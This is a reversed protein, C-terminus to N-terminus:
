LKVKIWQGNVCAKNSQNLAIAGYLMSVIKEPMAPCWVKLGSFECSKLPFTWSVPSSIWDYSTSYQTLNTTIKRMAKPKEPVFTYTPWLDIYHGFNRHKLRANPAIFEVGQSPFRDRNKFGVRQWQPHVRLVHVDSINADAFPFIKETDNALMMLDIDHDHPLLGRHRVYGILSGYGLWYQINHTDAFHVWVLLSRLLHEQRTRDNVTCNVMQELAKQIIIDDHPTTFVSSFSGRHYVLVVNIACIVITWFVAQLNRNKKM